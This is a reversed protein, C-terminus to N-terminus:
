SMGGGEGDRRFLDDTKEDRARDIEEELEKGLWENNAILKRTDLKETNLLALNNEIEARLRGNPDWYKGWPNYREIHDLWQGLGQLATEIEQLSSRQEGSRAMVLGLYLRALHDHGHIAVAKNLAKRAEDLRGTEYHARGIYSWIGERLLSFNVRYDPSIKAAREFYALAEEGQGKIM